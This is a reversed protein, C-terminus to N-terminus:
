KRTKCDDPYSLCLQNSQKLQRGSIKHCDTNKQNKRQDETHSRPIKQDYDSEKKTGTFRNLGWLPLAATQELATTRNNNFWQENNTWKKPPVTNPGQKTIWYNIDKWHQLWRSPSSLPPQKAKITKRTDQKNFYNRMIFFIPWLMLLINRCVAQKTALGIM